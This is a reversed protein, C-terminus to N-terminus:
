VRQEDSEIVEREFIEEFFEKRNQENYERRNEHNQQQNEQYNKNHNQNDESQNESARLSQEKVEFNLKELNFGLERLRQDLHTLNKELTDKVIESAVGMNIEINKGNKVVTLELEGLHPPHLKIIVRQIEVQPKPIETSNSINQSKQVMREVVNSLERSFEKGVILTKSSNGDEVEFQSQSSLMRNNLSNKGNSTDNEGSIEVKNENGFTEVSSIAKEVRISSDETNKSVINMFEKVSTLDTRVPIYKKQASDIQIKGNIRTEIKGNEILDTAKKENLLIKALDKETLAKGDESIKIREFDIVKLKSATFMRNMKEMESSMIKSLTDSTYNKGSVSINQVSINLPIKTTTMMTSTNGSTKTDTNKFSESVINESVNSKTMTSVIQSIDSHASGNQSSHSTKVLENESDTPKVVANSPNKLDKTTASNMASKLRGGKDTSNEASSKKEMLAGLFDQQKRLLDKVSNNEPDKGSEGISFDSAELNELIESIKQLLESKKEDSLDDQSINQIGKLIEAKIKEKDDLTDVLKQILETHNLLIKKTEKSLDSSLILNLYLILKGKLSSEKSDKLADIIGTVKLLETESLNLKKLNQTILSFGKFDTNKLGSIETLINLLVSQFNTDELENGNKLSNIKVGNNKIFSLKVNEKGELRGGSGIEKLQPSLFQILNM